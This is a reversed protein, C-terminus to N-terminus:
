KSISIIDWRQRFLCHPHLFWRDEQEVEYNEMGELVKLEDWGDPEQTRDARGVTSIQSHFAIIERPQKPLRENPVVQPSGKTYGYRAGSMPLKMRGVAKRWLDKGASRKAAMAGDDGLSDRSSNSEMQPEEPEPTVWPAM